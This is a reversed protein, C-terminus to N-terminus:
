LDRERGISGIVNLVWRYGFVVIGLALGWGLAEFHGAYTQVEINSVGAVVLRVGEGGEFTGLNTGGVFNTPYVANTTNGSVNWQPTLNPWTGALHLTGNTGNPVTGFQVVGVIQGNQVEGIAFTDGTSIIWPSGGVGGSTPQRRVMFAFVSVPVPKGHLGNVEALTNVKPLDSM